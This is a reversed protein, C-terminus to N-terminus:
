SLRRWVKQINQCSRQWCDLYLDEVGQRYEPHKVWRGADWYKAYKVAMKQAMNGDASGVLGDSALYRYLKMQAHPSGGLLHVTRGAFEWIPISRVGGYLSPVSYGLAIGEPLLAIQGALKPIVLVVECYDRLQEAQMVTRVVDHESVCEESLDPVTAYKPRHRRVVSLHLTWDPRKYDIDVFSIPFGYDARDSRIGLLYGVEYAIQTLRPNSGACYILDIM